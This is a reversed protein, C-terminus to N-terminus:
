GQVLTVVFRFSVAIDYTLRLPLETGTFTVVGTGVTRGDCAVEGSETNAANDSDIEWAVAGPGFCRGVIAYHKNGTLHAVVVSLPIGPGGMSALHTEDVVVDGGPLTFSLDLPSPVISALNIQQVKEGAEPDVSRLSPAASILAGLGKGLGSKAM